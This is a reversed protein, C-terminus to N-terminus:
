IAGGVGLESKFYRAMEDLYAAQLEAIIQGRMDELASRMYSREPINIAHARASAHFSGDQFQLSRATVPLTVRQTSVTGGYEHVGAYPVGPGGASITATVSDASDTVEYKVSDALKGSVRNLVAGNLKNFVIEDWLKLAINDMKRMMFDHVEQPLDEFLRELNDVGFIDVTIASDSM